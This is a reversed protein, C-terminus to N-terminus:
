QGEMIDGSKRCNEIGEVRLFVRRQRPADERAAISQSAGAARAIMRREAVGLAAFQAIVAKARQFSLLINRQETGTTDTHGEVLLLADDHATMWKALAELETELGALIPRASGLAFLVNIPRPCDLAVPTTPASGSTEHEVVAEDKTGITTPASGSAEQEVVAENRTELKEGQWENADPSPAPLPPPREVISPEPILDPAAGLTPDQPTEIIQSPKEGLRRPESLQTSGAAALAFATGALTLIIALWAPADEGALRHQSLVPSPRRKLGGGVSRFSAESHSAMPLGSSQDM